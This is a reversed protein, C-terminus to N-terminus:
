GQVERDRQGWYEVLGALIDRLEAARERSFTLRVIPQVAVESLQASMSAQVEADGWVPIPPLFGVNLVIEEPEGSGNAVIQVFFSNAATVPMEM